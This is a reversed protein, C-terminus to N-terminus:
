PEAGAHNVCRDLENMMSGAAISIPIEAVRPVFSRGWLVYVVTTPTSAFAFIAKMVVVAISEIGVDVGLIVRAIVAAEQVLLILVRKFLGFDILRQFRKDSKRHQLFARQKTKRIFVKDLTCRLAISGNFQLQQEAHARV